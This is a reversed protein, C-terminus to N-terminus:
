EHINGKGQDLTEKLLRLDKELASGRKMLYFLYFLIGGWVFLNAAFLFGLKNM